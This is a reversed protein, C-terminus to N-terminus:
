FLLNFIYPEDSTEIQLSLPLLAQYILAIEDKIDAM